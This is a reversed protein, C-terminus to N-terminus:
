EPLLKGMIPTLKADDTVRMFRLMVKEIEATTTITTSM